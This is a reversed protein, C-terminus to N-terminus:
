WLARVPANPEVTNVNNQQIENYGGPQQYGPQQITTGSPQMMPQGEERMREQSTDPQVMPAEGMNPQPTGQPQMMPDSEGTMPESPNQAPSVSETGDMTPNPNPTQAKLPSIALISVLVALFTGTYLSLKTM